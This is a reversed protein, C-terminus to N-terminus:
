AGEQRPAHAACVMGGRQLDLVSALAGCIAGDERYAICRCELLEDYRRTYDTQRRYRKDKKQANM